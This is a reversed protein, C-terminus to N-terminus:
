SLCFLVYEESLLQPNPRNEFLTDSALDGFKPHRGYHKRQRQYVYVIEM